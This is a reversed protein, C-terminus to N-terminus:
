RAPRPGPRAPSALRRTGLTGLGWAMVRRPDPEYGDFGETSVARQRRNSADRGHLLRSRTTRPPWYPSPEAYGANAWADYLDYNRQTGGPRGPWGCSCTARRGGTFDQEM